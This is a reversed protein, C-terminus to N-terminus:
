LLCSAAFLASASARKPWGTRPSKVAFRGAAHGEMHRRLAQPDTWGQSRVCNGEPCGIVPCYLRRRGAVGEEGEQSASMSVDLVLPAAAAM